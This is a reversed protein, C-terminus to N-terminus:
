FKLLFWLSGGIIILQLPLGWYWKDATLDFHLKKHLRHIQRILPWRRLFRLPNNDLIDVFIGGLGGIMIIGFNPKNQNLLIVITWIVVFESAAFIYIWLPWPKDEKEKINSFTGPDIHPIADLIFHIIFGLLFAVFPNSTTASAIAASALLHPTITM